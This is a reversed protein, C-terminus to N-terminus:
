AKEGDASQREWAPLKVAKARGKVPRAEMHTVRAVGDRGVHAWIAIHGVSVFIARDDMMEAHILCPSKRARASVVLEDFGGDVGTQMRWSLPKARPM